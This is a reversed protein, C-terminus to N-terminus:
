NNETNNFEGANTNIQGPAPKGQMIGTSNSYGAKAENYKTQLEKDDDSLVIAKDLNLLANNYDRLGLYAMGLYKYIDSGTISDTLPELINKAQEFQGKKCLIIGHVYRYMIDDNLALATVIETEADNYRNMMLYAKARVLYAFDEQQNFYLFKTIPPIVGEYDGTDYRCLAIALYAQVFDPNYQLASNFAAVAMNYQGLEKYYEGLFNYFLFGNSNAAKKLYELTLTSDGNYKAVMANYISSNLRTAFSKRDQSSFGNLMSVMDRIQSNNPEVSLIKNLYQVTHPYDGIVAYNKAIDMYDETMESSFAPLISMACILSYLFLKKM